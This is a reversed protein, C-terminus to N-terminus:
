LLVLETESKWIYRQQVVFGGAQNEGQSAVFPIRGHVMHDNDILLLDDQQLQYRFMVAELMRYLRTFPLEEGIGHYVGFSRLLSDLEESSAMDVHNPPERGLSRAISEVVDVLNGIASFAERRVAQPPSSLAVVIGPPVTPNALDRHPGSYQHAHNIKTGHRLQDDTMGQNKFLLFGYEQLTSRDIYGDRVLNFAYNQSTDPGFIKLGPKKLHPALVEKKYPFESVFEASM